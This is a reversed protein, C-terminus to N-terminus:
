ESECAAKIQDDKLGAKVMAAIQEITCTGTNAESQEDDPVVPEKENTKKVSPFRLRPVRPRCEKTRFFCEVLCDAAEAKLYGSGLCRPDAQMIYWKLMGTARRAAGGSFMNNVGCAVAFTSKEADNRRTVQCGLTTSSASPSRYTELVTDTVTDLRMGPVTTMWQTARGWAVDSSERPVWFSPDLVDIANKLATKKQKSMSQAAADHGFVGVVLVTAIVALVARM